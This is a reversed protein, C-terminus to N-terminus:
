IGGNKTNEVKEKIRNKVFKEPDSIMENIMNVEYKEEKEIDYETKEDLSEEIEDFLIDKWDEEYEIYYYRNGAKKCWKANELIKKICEKNLNTKEAIQGVYLGLEPYERLIKEVLMSEYNRKYKYKGIVDEKKQISEVTKEKSMLDAQTLTQHENECVERKNQENHFRLYTQLAYIYNAQANKGFDDFNILEKRIEELTQINNCKWLSVLINHRRLMKEVMNISSIFGKITNEKYNKRRCWVIFRDLFRDDMNEIDIKLFAGGDSDKLNDDINLDIKRLLDGKQTNNISEEKRCLEAFRESEVWTIYSFMGNEIRIIKGRFHKRVITNKKIIELIEKLKNVETISFISNEIFNNKQLYYDYNNMSNVIEKIRRDNNVIRKLEDKYNAKVFSESLDNKSKM